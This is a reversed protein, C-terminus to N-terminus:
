TGIMGGLIGSIYSSRLLLHSPDRVQYAECQGTNHGLKQRTVHCLMNFASSSTHSGRLFEGTMIQKVLSKSKQVEISEFLATKIVNYSHLIENLIRHKQAPMNKFRSVQFVFLFEM